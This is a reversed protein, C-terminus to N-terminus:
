HHRMLSFVGFAAVVLFTVALGLAYSLLLRRTPPVPNNADGALLASVARRRLFQYGQIQDRVTWM